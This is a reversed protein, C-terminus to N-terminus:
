RGKKDNQKLAQEDQRRKECTAAMQGLTQFIFEEVKVRVGMKKEIVGIVQVTLMSHGGLDFFNDAAGVRDVGLADQWIEALACEAETQPPKYTAELDAPRQHHVVPAGASQADRQQAPAIYRALRTTLPATSVIIRRPEDLRMLREFVAVGERPKIALKALDSKNSAGEGGEEFQWQDWNITMWPVSGRRNQAAAFADLFTNAAAYAGYGLGGLVTSLSSTLMWFDLPQGRLERELVCLGDIKPGFQRECTAVDLEQVPKFTDADLIGAAHIVGRISGFRSDVENLLRRMEEPKTVDAHDAMVEAGLAELSRIKAIRQSIGDTAGKERVWADWQAPDPLPTRGALVLKIGPVKALHHALVYGLGGLGGTILYTGGDRIRTHTGGDELRIREFSRVWRRGRRIAVNLDRASGLLELSLRGASADEHDTDIHRCKIHANEQPIVNCLALLTARHPDLSEDGSVDQAGASVVTLEMTDTSERRGLAQAVHLLSFFDVNGDRERIPREDVEGRTEVSWMHVVRRPQHRSETIAAMLADYDDKAQPNLAYRDGGYSTFRDGAKVRIVTHGRDQLFEVCQAGLGREDEFILWCEAGSTDRDTQSSVGRVSSKWVPTYLWENVDKRKAMQVDAQRLPNVWYRQREFPYTPLPIRYPKDNGWYTSWDIDVGALWLAGFSRLLKAYVHGKTECWSATPIIRSGDGIVSEMKEATRKEFGCQLFVYNDDEGLTRLVADLAVDQRFSEVWYSPDTAQEDTISKGTAGSIFPAAPARLEIRNAVDSRAQEGSGAMLLDLAQELALVGYQCACVLEAGITLAPQIGWALWVEALAYQVAFTETPHRETSSDQSALKSRLDLGHKSMLHDCCADLREGFAPVRERMESIADGQVSTDEPLVLVVDRNRKEQCQAFAPRGDGGRLNAVADAANTGVVIRRHNHAKRGVQLTHAVDALNIGPHKDLYDALNEAQRDLASPTRASLLLLQPKEQVPPAVREPPEELIVHANTGGIGFSSVGARCPENGSQWDALQRNVYFPSNEFDIEPNPLEFNVSPPIKRHEVAMVTKIFGTVGAAADLHGVNGKVSGIACFGKDETDAGIAKTMAAIEAPDGLVTGTGHTEVYGISRPPIGAAAIAETMVAAQGVVGPAAYSVKLSGDNNVASGRVVAHITDHDKLADELRRMVVVGVGNGFVTGQAGADFPRCRGDPSLISGPQYLYGSRQPVYVTVGGALAMDSEFNLLNQCALHIALLSTSCFTQVTFCPGKLNLKYAVRTALSDQMNCVASEFEGFALRVPPNEYLNHVLYHSFGAGACLSIPAEFRDPDYGAHELAEWACELFLRQQPDLIEAERPSFGFFSADFLDVNELIGRARVYSESAILQSPEGSALLEEDTFTAISEVSDCINRWFTHVDPAGPFRGAMGVVAIESGDHDPRSSSSM